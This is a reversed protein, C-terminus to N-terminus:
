DFVKLVAHKFQSRTRLTQPDASELEPDIEELSRLHTLLPSYCCVLEKM